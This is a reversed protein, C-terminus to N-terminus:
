IGEALPASPEKLINLSRMAYKVTMLRALMHSVKHLHMALVIIRIKEEERGFVLPGLEM